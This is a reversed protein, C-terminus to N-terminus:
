SKKKVIVCQTCQSKNTVYQNIIEFYERMYEYFEDRTWERVHATNTPPGDQSLVRFSRDPTSLILYCFDIKSLYNIFNDPDLVHEIVDACVVVGYKGVPPTDTKIAWSKNPYKKILYSYTPKLDIGLTDFDCFLNVLKYGSGCGIDLVPQKDIIKAITLALQYVEYQFHDTKQTNDCYIPDGRHVYGEKIKYM